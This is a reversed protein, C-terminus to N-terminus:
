KYANQVAPVKVSCKDCKLNVVRTQYGRREILVKGCKPCYTSENRHGRVNGLYVWKMGTKKAIGVARELTKVPTPKTDTLKYQPHFRSFHIPTEPGLKEKVWSVLARVQEPKDNFGPIVLNTIEIWVGNEKYIELARKMPEENPVSCLKQYFRVDGKLDVNIADLYKSIRRAPEPNTYGNSVWVNYLGEKHALKMIEFYYEWAITPETYTYAIGPLNNEKTLDIIEQPTREEGFIEKPHSVEWNQCFLCHLNCGVTAISLCQTGPAFHFLPKKEIADVAMSCLKGYVLSYLKGKRNERVGCFGRKSEQIICGRPCLSCQINGNRKKYFLAEKM